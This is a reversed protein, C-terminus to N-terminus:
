SNLKGIYHFINGIQPFLASTRISLRSLTFRFVSSLSRWDAKHPLPFYQEKAKYKITKLALNEFFNLQSHYNTLSLHQPPHANHTKAKIRSGLKIAFHSLCTNAELPGDAIFLTDQHAYQKMQNIIQDPKVLHELIHGFHIIDFKSGHHKELFGDESLIELGTKDKLLECFSANYDIGVPMAGLTQAYKMYFGNGCGYDLLTKDKISDAIEKLFLLQYSQQDFKPYEFTHRFKEGKLKLLYDHDNVGYMLDFDEKEPLPFVSLSKCHTCKYYYFYHDNFLTPPYISKKLDNKKCIICCQIQLNQSM